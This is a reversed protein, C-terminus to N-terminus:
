NLPFLVISLENMGEKFIYPELITIANSYEKNDKLIELFVNKLELFGANKNGHQILYNRLGKIFNDNGILSHFYKLIASGKYHLFQDYLSEACHTDLCDIQIPHTTEFQDM